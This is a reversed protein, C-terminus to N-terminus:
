SPYIGTPYRTWRPILIPFNPPSRATNVPLFSAFVINQTCGSWLCGGCLYLPFLYGFSCLDLFSGSEGATFPPLHYEANLICRRIWINYVHHGVSILDPFTRVSSRTPISFSISEKRTPSNRQSNIWSIFINNINRTTRMRKM